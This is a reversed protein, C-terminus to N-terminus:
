LSQLSHAAEEIIALLNNLYDEHNINHQDSHSAKYDKENDINGLEDTKVKNGHLVQKSNMFSSKLDKSKRHITTGNDINPKIKNQSGNGYMFDAECEELLITMM